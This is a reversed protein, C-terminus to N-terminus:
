RCECPAIGISKGAKDLWYSIEEFKARKPEHQIAQEVPITRMLAQGMPVAWSILKQLELVYNLFAPATEPYRDTREKTMVTSEMAGPAFVPLQVRDVGDSDCNYELLGIRVLDDAMRATDEVSMGERKALEHIYYPRRLKMKLAFDVQEDTLQRDFFIYEWSKESPLPNFMNIHRVLRILNKRPTKSCEKWYQELCKREGETFIHEAM